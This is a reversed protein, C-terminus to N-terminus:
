LARRRRLWSIAGTGIAALLLAGPAPIPVSCLEGWLYTTGTACECTSIHDTLASASSGFGLLCLQYEVGGVTFAEPAFTTPLVITDPGGGNTGQSEIVGLTMSTNVPTGGFNLAVALDVSTIGSNANIPTNYHRLTGVMFATGPTADQSTAGTFGLYTRSGTTTGWYIRQEGGVLAYSVPNAGGQLAPNSWTGSASTLTPAGISSGVMALVAMAPLIIPLRRM